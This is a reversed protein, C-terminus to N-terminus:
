FEDAPAVLDDREQSAFPLALEVVNQALAQPGEGIIPDGHAELVLPMIVGPLPPAAVAVLVPLEVLVAVHAPALRADVIDSDFLDLASEGDRKGVAVIDVDRQM